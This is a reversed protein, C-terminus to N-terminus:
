PCTHLSVKDTSIIWDMKTNIKWTSNTHKHINTDYQHKSLQEPIKHPHIDNTKQIFLFWVNQINFIFHSGFLIDRPSAGPNKNLQHHYTRCFLESYSLFQERSTRAYKPIQVTCCRFTSILMWMWFFCFCKMIVYSVIVNSM